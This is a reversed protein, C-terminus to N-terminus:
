RMLWWLNADRTLYINVLPVQEFESVKATKFYQDVDWLFNGLTKASRSSDFPSPELIKVRSLGERMALPIAEARQSSHSWAGVNPGKFHASWGLAPEGELWPLSEIMQLVPGLLDDICGSVHEVLDMREKLRDLQDKTGGSDWPKLLEKACHSAGISVTVVEILWGVLRAASSRCRADLWGLSTLSTSNEGGYCLAFCALVFLCVLLWAYLDLLWTYSLFNYSEISHSSNM